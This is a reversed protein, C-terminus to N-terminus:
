AATQASAQELIPYEGTVAVRRLVASIRDTYERVLAPGQPTVPYRIAVHVGDAVRSAWVHSDDAQLTQGLTVPTSEAQREAGAMKRYDIYSVMSFM